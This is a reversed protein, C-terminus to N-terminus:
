DKSIDKKAEQQWSKTNYADKAVSQFAAKNARLLSMVENQPM